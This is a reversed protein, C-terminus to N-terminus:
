SAVVRFGQENYTVACPFLDPNVQSTSICFDSNAVRFLVRGAEISGHITFKQYNENCKNGQVIKTGLELNVAQPQLYKKSYKSQLCYFGDTNWTILIRQRDSNNCQEKTVTSKGRVSDVTLCLGEKNILSVYNDLIFSSQSLLRTEIKNKNKARIYSSLTLILCM